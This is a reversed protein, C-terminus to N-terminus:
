RAASRSGGDIQQGLLAIARQYARIADDLRGTEQLMIGLNSHWDALEPELALSREVLAVGEATRGQQHALVGSFHLASAHDPVVELVRRLVEQAETLRDEQQLRIAITLAEDVTMERHADAEPKM